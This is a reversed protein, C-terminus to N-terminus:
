SVSLYMFVLLLSNPTSVTWILYWDILWKILWDVLWGISCDFLWWYSKYLALGCHQVVSQQANLLYFIVLLIVVTLLVYFFYYFCLYIFIHIYLYTFVFYIFYKFSEQFTSATCCSSPSLPPPSRQAGSEGDPQNFPHNSPQFPTTPKLTQKTSLMTTSPKIPHSPENQRLCSSWLFM